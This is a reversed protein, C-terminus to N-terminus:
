LWFNQSQNFINTNNESEFLDNIHPNKNSNSAELKKDEEDDEDNIDIDLYEDLLLTTYIDKKKLKSFLKNFEVVTEPRELLAAKLRLKANCVTPMLEETSHRM